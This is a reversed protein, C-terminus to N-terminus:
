SAGASRLLMVLLVSTVRRLTLLSMVVLSIALVILRRKFLVASPGSLIRFLARFVQLGSIAGQSISM